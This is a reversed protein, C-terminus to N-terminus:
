PRTASPLGETYLQPVEQLLGLPAFESPLHAASFVLQQRNLIGDYAMRCLGQFQNHMDVPLDSFTTVKLQQKYKGPHTSIYNVLTKLTFATYLETMTTPPSLEIHHNWTFVEASMKATIPTYMATRIVPNSSLYDTFKAAFLSPDAVSKAKSIYHTIQNNTFTLIELHQAIRNECDQILYQSAWPRSTVFKTALPLIRDHILDLFVSAKERLEHDLEDWAELWIAVGQGQHSTVQQVVAEQLESDPHYFLDLLSKAVNLTYDRLPLLLLLSCDQLVDGRGWKRCFEWSFTTKGVGPAGEILILKQQHHSSLKGVEEFKIPSKKYFETGLSGVDDMDGRLYRRTFEDVSVKEKEIKALKFPFPKLPLASSSLTQPSKESTYLERLFTSYKFTVSSYMDYGVPTTMQVPLSLLPVPRSPTVQSLQSYAPHTASPMTTTAAVYPTVTPLPLSLHTSDGQTSCYKHELDAALKVEGIVNLANIINTWTPHSYKLWRSLTEKFCDTPDSYQKNIADLTCISVGLQVGIDKWKGRVNHLEKTVVHLDAVSLPPGPNIEIDGSWM